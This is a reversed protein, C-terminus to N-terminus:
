LKLHHKRQRYTNKITVVFEAHLNSAQHKYIVLEYSTFQVNMVQLNYTWLKNILFKKSTFKLNFKQQKYIVLKFRNFLSNSLKLLM